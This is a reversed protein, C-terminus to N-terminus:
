KYNKFNSPLVKNFDNESKNSNYDIHYILSYHFSRLVIEM